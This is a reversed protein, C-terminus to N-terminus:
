GGSVPAKQRCASTAPEWISSSPAQRGGHQCAICSWSAGMLCMSIEPRLRVVPPARLARLLRVAEVPADRRAVGGAACDDVAPWTIGRGAFQMTCVEVATSHLRPLVTASAASDVDSACTQVALTHSNTDSSWSNTHQRRCHGLCTVLRRGHRAAHLLARGAGDFGSGARLVADLACTLSGTCCHWELLQQAAPVQV